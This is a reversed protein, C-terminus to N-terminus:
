PRNQAWEDPLFGGRTLWSDLAEIEDLLTQADESLEWHERAEEVLDRIRELAENPDM